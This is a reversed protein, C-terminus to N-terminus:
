SQTAEKELRAIWRKLSEIVSRLEHGRLWDISAVPIGENNKKTMRGAWRSLATESGDQILGAKHADIWIARLKDQQTKLEPAFNRSVPSHTRGRPRNRFGRQKFSALVKRLQQVNMLSCSNHGTITQLTQRYTSDDMGLQNRAIHVQAILKTREDKYDKASKSM